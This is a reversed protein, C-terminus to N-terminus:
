EPPLSWSSRPEFVAPCITWSISEWFFWCLVPSTSHNLHYLAQSPFTPGETWTGTGYLSFLSLPFFGHLVTSLSVYITFTYLIGLFIWGPNESVEPHWTYPPWCWHNVGRNKVVQSVSLLIIETQHCSLSITWSIEDRFDASCFARSTHYVVGTGHPFTHSLCISNSM